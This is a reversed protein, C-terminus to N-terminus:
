PLDLPDVGKAGRIHKLRRARAAEQSKKAALHAKHNKDAISNIAATHERDLRASDQRAEEDTRDM